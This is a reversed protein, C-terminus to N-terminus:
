YRSNEPIKIPTSPPNETEFCSNRTAKCAGNLWLVYTICASSLRVCYTVRETYCVPLYIVSVISCLRKDTVTVLLFAQSVSLYARSLLAHKFAGLSSIQSLDFCPVHPYCNLEIAIKMRKAECIHSIGRFKVFIRVQLLELDDLTMSRPTLRFRM